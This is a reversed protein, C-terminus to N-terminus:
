EIQQAMLKARAVDSGQTSKNGGCVLIMVVRQRRPFYVRYGPCVDIRMESVGGGVSKV